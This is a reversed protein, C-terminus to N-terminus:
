LAVEFNARLVPSGGSWYDLPYYTDPSLDLTLTIDAFDRLPNVQYHLGEIFYTDGAFGGGPWGVNVTISDSIEAGLLLDWNPGARDDWPPLSKFSIQTIRERPVSYNDVYYQAFLKCEDNSDNGTTWGHETFLGAKTWTRYGYKGISTGDKVNQHKLDKDKTAISSASAFNILRTVGRSYAFTRIQATDTPSLAIGAGDGAKWRTFNWTGQEHSEAESSVREPDFKAFRGHFTVIGDRDTYVNGVGPFESDAADQLVTLVNEGSSYSSEYLSVNGSFITALEPPWGANGLVQYMRVRVEDANDFFINGEAGVPPPDGFTTIDDPQMSIASLIEFADACQLTVEVNHQSPDVLYEYDTVYGRWVGTWTSTCPNWLECKIQLLPEIKGAYPGPGFPDMLGEVDNLTISARGTDTQDLEFSRGRDITFNSVLNANTTIDTWSPSPELTVDDFACSVRVGGAM